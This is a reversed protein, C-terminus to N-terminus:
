MIMDMPASKELTLEVSSLFGLDIGSCPRNRPSHPCHPHHCINQLLSCAGGRGALFMIQEALSWQVSQGLGGSYSALATCAACLLSHIQTATPMPLWTSQHTHAFHVSKGQMRVLLVLAYEALSSSLSVKGFWYVKKEEVNCTLVDRERWSSLAKETGIYWRPFTITNCFKECKVIRSNTQSWITLITSHQLSKTVFSVLATKTAHGFIATGLLSHKQRLLFRQKSHKPPPLAKAAEEPLEM